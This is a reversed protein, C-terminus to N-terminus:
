PSEKYAKWAAAENEQAQKMRVLDDGPVLMSRISALVAVHLWDAQRLREERALEAAERWQKISESNNFIDAVFRRVEEESM